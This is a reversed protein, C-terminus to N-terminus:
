LLIEEAPAPLFGCEVFWSFYRALLEGDLAPPPEVGSARVHRADFRFPSGTEQLDAALLGERLLTRFPALANSELSGSLRRDWEAGPLLELPWGQARAFRFVERWPIPSPHFFHFARDLSARRRSLHVVARALWDAPVPDFPFSLDPAAGMQVCGKLFAWMLDRLNGVGTRSDGSVLGPRYVASRLGRERALGLIKEAVWKTQPYGGGLNRSDRLPSDELGTGDETFSGAGFVALTSVFHVPKARGLAALRLAEVTGGVNAAKLTRYPYTFNVWAGCHHVAEATEALARFDREDLGWRPEALDGPVAVTREAPLDGLHLSSLNDLLRERAERASGARVLCHVTARTRALLERLLFAGLFGTAGTLVVARPDSLDGLDTSEPRISPDLQVDAELDPTEEELTGGQRLTEVARAVQAVTPAELLRALPLDVGFSRTLRDLVRPALLSHGGLEFFSDHRGIREVQLIDRWIAAIGAEVGAQPETGSARERVPPATEEVRARHPPDFAYRQRQFPYTPLATKRLREGAHVGQWDIEAGTLWLRALAGALFEDDPKPDYVPRLTPIAIRGASQQLALTSLGHGPGVELLVPSPEQCLTRLGEVFRVTGLLHRVWYEPDVADAEAIWTGTVNSVWPIAPPRLEITSLLRRLDEAAPAMAPSHFAHSTPLRRCAVGKAGLRAALADVAEVPGAVVCLDSTNVAAVALGETLDLRDEPLPVALMAGPPLADLLRAREAVLRLGDEFSFVGALCAASYEGLSYGLAASPRVGWFEWLRALAMEVLFVAPQDQATNSPQAARGLMSRLNLGEGGPGRERDARTWGGRSLPLSVIESGQDIVQRFVPESDYLGQAMGPYHDGLGPFLFAVPRGAIADGDLLRERGALAELAQREGQVDRCVLARRHRLARRGTQLTWAADPLSIEPHAKLHDALRDAAEDLAAPSAASLTLVQWPRISESPEPEPAEELVVHANTGGIGFSSVGARRPEGDANWDIAKSAVFFPTEEFGIEPHPQEVHLSPPILRNELALVTKILGAIGAASDCHGVNTKVSGVACFGKRETGARFARTLARIEVLDGMPTASGHTEVYSVSGPEVGAMSQAEAIVASQGDVSPATYGIKTAGDNNIASGRIVARVRDGDRLAGELRKLAVLGAGDGGVTGSAAADFARCLGDASLISGEQFVYGSRQPFTISVGGALALDCERNLLGQCALHVAVLSTSCATSVNVSPGRLNLRYSAQTSLFDKDNGLRVELPGATRAVEPNDLLRSLFWTSQSTGAYVGVSGEFRAPDCGADELAEWATELFVRQQPDLLRAERPNFDFLAADFREAGRLVGRRRVYGPLELLERPVGEAELEEDAFTSLADVGRRLNDWFAALDDAGAFRGAMGVVAVDYFREESM